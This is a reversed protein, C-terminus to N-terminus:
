ICFKARSSSGMGGVIFRLRAFLTVPTIASGGAALPQSLLARQGFCVPFFNGYNFFHVVRGM